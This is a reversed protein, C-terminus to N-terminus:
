KIEIQGNMYANLIGQLKVQASGNDVCVLRCPRYSSTDTPGRGSIDETCVLGESACAVVKVEGHVPCIWSM